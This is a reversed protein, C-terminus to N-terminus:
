ASAPARLMPGASIAAASKLRIPIASHMVALELYIICHPIETIYPTRTVIYPTRTVIYPTRTVIYPTRTVIYPTREMIYPARGRKDLFPM